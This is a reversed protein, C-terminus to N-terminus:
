LSLSALFLADTNAHNQDAHGDKLRILAQSRSQYDHAFFFLGQKGSSFRLFPLAQVCLGTLM